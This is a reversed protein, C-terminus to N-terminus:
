CQIFYSLHDLNTFPALKYLSSVHQLSAGTLRWGRLPGHHEKLLLVLWVCYICCKEALSSLADLCSSLCCLMQQSLLMKLVGLLLGPSAQCLRCCGAPKVSMTVYALACCVIPTCSGVQKPIGQYLAVRLFRETNEVKGLIRAVRNTVM